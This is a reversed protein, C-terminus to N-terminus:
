AINKANEATSKEKEADAKASEKETISKTDEARKKAADDMIEEYDKQSAEEEKKAEIMEKDLDRILLDIMGLVGGSEEGKKQYSGFTEPPPGPDDKHQVAEIKVTISEQVLSAAPVEGGMNSYIREEETLERKPPSKYLKPNYFKNLRNKAFELLEKAATNSSILEIYETHEKKRQVSADMVSADLAQIGATLSEIDEVAGKITESTDAIITDLDDIKHKLEKAKDEAFDIQGTCYERKYDDDKQEKSLLAVMDDIMKIVKSFDVKKGDLALAILDIDPRNSHARARRLIEVARQQASRLQSQLFAAPSPLTKKFLELADDDNLIKITDAIAVLEQSRTKVREDWEQNKTGCNTELDKLFRQDEILAAEADTLQNKMHVIEVSLEGVLATKREIQETHTQVEKTKAKMLEDYTAVKGKEEKVVEDLDKQFDDKMSKLIGTIQGSKPVYGEEGATTGSLFATVADRDFETLDSTQAIIKRLQAASSTQMFGNRGAMGTEIAPIAKNLMAINAKLEGSVKLFEANEKERVSTAKAIASKADDRSSQHEKLQAKTTVVKAEAAEIDSQFEPVKADNESISKGLSEGSNKCYCMFKDFLEKEKEGEQEIKKAM